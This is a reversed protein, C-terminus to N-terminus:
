LLYDEDALLRSGTGTGRPPPGSWPQVDYKVGKIGLSVLPIIDGSEYFGHGEVEPAASSAATQLVAALLEAEGDDLDIAEIKASLSDATAQSITM